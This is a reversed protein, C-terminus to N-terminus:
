QIPLRQRRNFEDFQYLVLGNFVYLATTSSLKSELCKDVSERCKSYVCTCEYIYTVRHSM